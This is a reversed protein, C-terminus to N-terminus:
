SMTSLNDKLGAQLIVIVLQIPVKMNAVYQDLKPSPVPDEREQVEQNAVAVKVNKAEM